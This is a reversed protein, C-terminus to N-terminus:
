VSGGAPPRDAQAIPECGPYIRERSTRSQSAGRTYEREVHAIPECGPYMRERRARNARVGPVNERSTRSRSAGVLLSRRCVRSRTVGFKTVELHAPAHPRSVGGGGGAGCQAPGDAQAAQAHAPNRRPGPRGAGGASAFLGGDGRRRGRERPHYPGRYQGCVVRETVDLRRAASSDM